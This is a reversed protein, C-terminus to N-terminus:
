TSDSDVVHWGIEELDQAIAKTVTGEAAFIAMKDEDTFIGGSGSCYWSIYDGENYMEAVIGAAYRWTCSWTQNKLVHWLEKKQFENNCLAAYLNQAYIESDKVKTLIKASTKLDHELDPKM